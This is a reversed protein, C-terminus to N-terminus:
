AMPMSSLLINCLFQGVLIVGAGRFVIFCKAHLVINNGSPYGCPSWSDGDLGVLCMDTEKFAGDATNNPTPTDNPTPTITVHQSWSGFDLPKGHREDVKPYYKVLNSILLM